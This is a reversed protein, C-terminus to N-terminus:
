LKKRQKVMCEQCRWPQAVAKIPHFPALHLVALSEELPPFLEVGQQDSIKRKSDQSHALYKSSGPVSPNLALIQCFGTVYSPLNDTFTEQAAAPM